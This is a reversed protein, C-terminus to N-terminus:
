PIGRRTATSIPPRAPSCAPRAPSAPWRWRSLKVSHIVEKHPTFKMIVVNEISYTKIEVPNEEGFADFYLLGVFVLVLSFIIKDGAFM